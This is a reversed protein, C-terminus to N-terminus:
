EDVEFEGSEMSEVLEELWEEVSAYETERDEDNKWFGLLRGPAEGNRAIADLCLYSGGGNSMFPVWEREWYGEEFDFGIMGDMLEKTSTLDSLSMFMYNGQFSDSSAEDQGDRWKYLARFDEPLTLAFKAELADLEADAVGSRLLSYYDPRNDKIWADLRDILTEDM